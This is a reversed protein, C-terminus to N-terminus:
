FHYCGANIKMCQLVTLLYNIVIFIFSLFSFLFPCNDQLDLFCFVVFVVSSFSKVVCPHCWTCQNKPVCPIGGGQSSDGYHSCVPSLCPVITRPTNCECWFSVKNMCLCWVFDVSGCQMIAHSCFRLSLIINSKKGTHGHWFCFAFAEVMFLKAMQNAASDESTSECPWFVFLMLWVMCFFSCLGFSPSHCEAFIGEIENAPLLLNANFFCKM